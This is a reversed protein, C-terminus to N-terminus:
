LAALRRQLFRREVGNQCLQLARVYSMAAEDRRDARRL